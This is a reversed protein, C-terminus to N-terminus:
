VNDTWGRCVMFGQPTNSAWFVNSSEVILDIAATPALAYNSGQTNLPAPNTSSTISGYSNNPALM